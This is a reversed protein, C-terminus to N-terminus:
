FMPRLTGVDINDMGATPRPRPRPRPRVSVVIAMPRPRVPAIVVTRAMPPRGPRRRQLALQVIRDEVAVWSEVQDDCGRRRATITVREGRKVDVQFPPKRRRYVVRGAIAVEVLTRPSRAKVTVKHIKLPDVPVARMEAMAVPGAPPTADPPAMAAATPATPSKEKSSGTLKGTAFLIAVGAVALVGVALLAKVLAGSGRAPQPADGPTSIAQSASAGLTSVSPKSRTISEPHQTAAMAATVTATAGAPTGAFAQSLERFLQGASQQREAPDKALSRAIVTAVAPPLDSAVQELPIPPEAIHKYLLEATSEAQIPLQGSLMQYLIVGLAYIDSRPSIERTRGAAQEPSMYLPTGMIVGSSTRAADSLGPETLKAIGFDLIKVVRGKHGDVIFINDPKLDRHVIGTAHAADLAGALQEALSSVEGITLPAHDQIHETLERGQLCEMTFYLRGDDLEGFDYIQIINPHNITNVSKAEALFRQSIDPNASLAAVLVKIAVKRGIQPHEGLYVEGMAGAGLLSLVRYNGITTGLLSPAKTQQM